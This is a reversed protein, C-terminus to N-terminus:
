ERFFSTGNRFGLVAVAFKGKNLLAKRM